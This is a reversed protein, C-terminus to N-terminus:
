FGTGCEPCRDKSGRLDYGCKVCWGLKKRKRRRHRLTLLYAPCVLCLVTPIWLPVRWYLVRPNFRNVYPLWPNAYAYNWKFDLTSSRWGLEGLGRSSQWMVNGTHLAFMVRPGHYEAPTCYSVGWSGVSLLLGLLSLITLTKRLM